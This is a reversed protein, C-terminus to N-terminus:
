LENCFLGWSLVCSSACHVWQCSFIFRHSVKFLYWAAPIYSYKLEKFVQFTVSVVASWDLCSMSLLDDRVDQQLTMLSFWAATTIWPAGVQAVDGCRQVPQVPPGASTFSVKLKEGPRWVLGVMSQWTKLLWGCIRLSSFVQSLLECTNLWTGIHWCMECVLLIVVSSLTQEYRIHLHCLLFLEFSQRFYIFVCRKDNLLHDVEKKNGDM